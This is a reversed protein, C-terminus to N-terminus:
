LILFKNFTANFLIITNQLMCYTILFSCTRRKVAEIWLCSNELHMIPYIPMLFESASSPSLM